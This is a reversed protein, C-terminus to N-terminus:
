IKIEIICKRRARGCNYTLFNIIKTSNQIKVLINLNKM